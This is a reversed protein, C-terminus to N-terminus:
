YCFVPLWEYLIAVLFVRQWRAEIWVGQKLPQSLNIKVCVRAFRARTVNVTHKDVKILNGLHSGIFDLTEEDWFGVPLHDIQIWVAAHELKEFAPQFNGKWLALQLAMGAITWPGGM